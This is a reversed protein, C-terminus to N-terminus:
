SCIPHNIFNNIFFTCMCHMLRCERYCLPEEPLWQGEASCFREDSGFLSYNPQCNYQAVSTYNTTTINIAGNSPTVIPGCDVGTTIIIIIICREYKCRTMIVKVSHTIDVGPVMLNVCEIWIEMSLTALTVITHSLLTLPGSMRLGWTM